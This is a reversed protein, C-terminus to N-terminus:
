LIDLGALLGEYAQSLQADEICYPPLLYICNGLPRINFGKALYHDRLQLSADSKYGDGADALDFALISGTVRPRTVKPHDLLFTAFKEHSKRIEGIRELTAEEEFLALSCNAVACALPNGTFSHGHALAKSFDQGLFVDFIKDRAITLSMPLTGATLGKSLCILDPVVGCQEHAFLSGTRGFGVMVEDFIVLIDHERAIETLKQIFAPSCMKMGGAGQILPEIILAAIKDGGGEICSIFADLAKQERQECTEDGLWTAAYPLLHVDCLLDDYLSFFGSGKGVSMAGVTDGHYGGEFAIFSKRTEQGLNQWYQYATKLAVEVATSGNDSFFVRNLDEGLRSTLSSALTVAPEHTFGSFMVHSMKEAQESIAQNIKPHSHGHTITWWSSILDLIEEGELGYLVAGKAHDLALPSCETKHQTFPHWIHREDRAILDNM